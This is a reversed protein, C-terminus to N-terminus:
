FEVGHDIRSPGPDALEVYQASHPRETVQSLGLIAARNSFRWCNPRGAHLGWQVGGIDGLHGAVEGLLHKAFVGIAQAQLDVGRDTRALLARGVCGNAVSNQLVVALVTVPARFGENVESDILGCLFFDDGIRQSVM